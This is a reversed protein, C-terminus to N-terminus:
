RRGTSLTTSALADHHKSTELRSHAALSNPFIGPRAGLKEVERWAAFLPGDSTMLMAECSKSRKTNRRIRLLGGDNHFSSLGIDCLWWAGEGTVTVM